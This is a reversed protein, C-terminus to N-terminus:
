QKSNDEFIDEFKIKPFIDLKGGITADKILRNNKTYHNLAVKYAFEEGTYDPADYIQKKNYYGKFFHNQTKSDVNVATGAKANTSYSHDKGIIYVESYGLYYALQICTYTVSKGNGFISGNSDMFRPSFRTLIFYRNPLKDFMKHLRFDYFTPIHNLDNYSETFQKLQTRNDICMLYNLSIDFKAEIMYGRNMSILDENKLLNFDIKNLSPGTAVVFCRKGKNINKLQKIKKRNNAYFGLPLFYATIHYLFRIRTLIAIFVRKFTIERVNYSIIRKLGLM